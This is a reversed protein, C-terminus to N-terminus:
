GNAEKLEILKNRENVAKNENFLQASSSQYSEYPDSVVITFYQTDAVKLGSHSTILELFYRGKDKPDDTQIFIGRDTM